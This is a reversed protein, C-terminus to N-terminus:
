FGFSVVVRSRTVGFERARYPVYFCSRHFGPSFPLYITAYDCPEFPRSRPNATRSRFRRDGSPGTTPIYRSDGSQYVYVEVPQGNEGRYLPRKIIDGANATGPPAGFLFPTLLAAALKASWAKM